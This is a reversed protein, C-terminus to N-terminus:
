TINFVEKAKALHSKRDDLGHTGGNIRKTISLVDDRDAYNNLKRSDWFWAAAMVAAHPDDSLLEPKEALNMGIARGCNTYNEKGTLQILGRGRFKWGEGSEEDGNRMRGGYVKNAIKEPKRAYEEAMENTPFYKGFVSKLAKASYNLNETSLRFNASEHALQAIFHTIRLPTNIGYKTMGANLAEYYKDINATSAMPLAKALDSKSILVDGEIPNQEDDTQSQINQRAKLATTIATWTGSGAIGDSVLNQKEQFDIVANVCGQGFIGDVDLNYGLKNLSEQLQKVDNGRSGRKVLKM